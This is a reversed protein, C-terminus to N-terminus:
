YFRAPTCLSLLCVQIALYLLHLNWSHGSVIFKNVLTMSISAFSYALVAATGSNELSAIFGSTSQTKPTFRGKGGDDDRKGNMKRAVYRFLGAVLGFTLLGM